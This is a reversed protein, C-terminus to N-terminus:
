TMEEIVYLSKDGKKYMKTKVGYEVGDADTSIIDVDLQYENYMGATPEVVEDVPPNIVTNEVPPTKKKFCGTLAISMLLVLSISVVKKM